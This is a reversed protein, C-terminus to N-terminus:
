NLECGNTPYTAMFTLAIANQNLNYARASTMDGQAQRLAQIGEGLALNGTRFNAQLCSKLNKVGNLIVTQTTTLPLSSFAIARGHLYGMGSCKGTRPGM